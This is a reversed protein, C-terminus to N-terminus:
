TEEPCRHWASSGCPDVLSQLESITVLAAELPFTLPCLDYAWIAASETITGARIRHLHCQDLLDLVLDPCSWHWLLYSDPLHKSLCFALCM